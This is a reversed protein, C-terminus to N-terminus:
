RSLNAWVKETLDDTLREVYYSGYAPDVVKQLHSEHKLLHQVNRAIRYSFADPAQTLADSPTITLYDVGAIVASLAQTTARIMNYNQDATYDEKATTIHFKPLLTPTAGFAKSLNAWLVKLARLKAIAVFFSTGVSTNICLHQNITNMSLTSECLKGFLDKGGNIIETLENIINERNQYNSFTFALKFHQLQHEHLYSFLATLETASLNTSIHFTARIDTITNYQNKLVAVVNKILTLPAFEIKFQTTIYKFEVGQTLTILEETTLLKSLVFCPAEVGAMLASLVQQNTKKIDDVLIFESIQWNNDLQTATFIDATHEKQNFPSITWDEQIDWDLASLPKGKLEKKIKALWDEKGTAEFAEFLQESM